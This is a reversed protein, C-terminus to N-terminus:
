RQGEDPPLKSEGRRALAERVRRACAGPRDTVMRYTFRSVEYGAAALDLDRERDREFARRDRHFAYGDTEAVLREARWLFDVLYGEVFVNVEPRPLGAESCLALFDVELPSRTDRGRPDIGAVVRRFRGSGKRGNSENVVQRLQPWDVLGARDADIVMRELARKGLRAAMDLVTREISTVPIENQVTVHASPLFRTQHLWIARRTTGGARRTVEVRGSDEGIGWLEAASGHSLVAARGCALVAAVWTAERGLQGHGVAFVGEHVMVLVGVDVRAEILGPALGQQLLQDRTVIGHQREALRRITETAKRDRM